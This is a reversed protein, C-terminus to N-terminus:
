PAFRQMLEAMASPGDISDMDGRKYAAWRNDLEALQAEQFEEVGSGNLSGYLLDILQVRGESPLKLAEAYILAADM